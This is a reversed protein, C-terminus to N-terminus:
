DKEYVMRIGLHCYTEEKFHGHPCAKICGLSNNECTLPQNCEPCTNSFIKNLFTLM